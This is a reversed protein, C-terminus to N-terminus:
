VWIGARVSLRERLLTVLLLLPNAQYQIRVLRKSTDSPQTSEIHYVKYHDDIVLLIEM